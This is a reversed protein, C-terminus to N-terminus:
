ALVEEANPRAERDAELQRSLAEPSRTFPALLAYFSPVVFLTLLTALTVGAMIVVGITFRSASGAGDALVLPLAGIVTSVSTMIIPRLRVVSAELVADVVSRGADRLQNAFEVILIGNKAALGILMVIGIQSYLNMSSGALWLGLLAGFVALPVTLMIVLPHIFSEFQAALVLYVVLLALAFSVWAASGSIKYERSEGKYDWGADSPLVDRAADEVYTLAEGLPYGPVLQASVTIARLRNYRNFTSPEALERLTVLSALPVLQGNRGRVYLNDLDAPDARDESRAQLMVEYEEGGRQFTTVRRSGFMTELTSGIEETSVGLDAARPRDIEVRIQPRTEKYDSDIGVLKDNESLREILTDRWSMLTDYDPGLLVFQLPPGYSRVLGQRAQAFASMGPLEGLEKRIKEMSEVTTGDRQEWPAMIAVAQGTHTDEGAGGWGRPARTIVRRVVGEDVMRLLVAEVQEMQELTYDFGAGEPGNLMVFFVGRDEPPALEAPVLKLLGWIGGAALLLVLGMLASHGVTRQLVRRYAEGIRTTFQDVKHAWGGHSEEPTLLWACLAPSLSLAVISSVIVAAAIAVALESFLRGLNGEMFAIPVFVSVLVATTAIVAFGVQRAGRWAALLRTEGLDVRRQCNELVVIADDVVLGISLVLALLTLLNISYGLAYLATFSAILCIPVTVAPILAARASGLFAYIVGIVLAMTIALTFYVESIASEIFESTDVAVLLRTGEPLTEAIREAADKVGRSVDIANATSQKIIGLGVQPQGNGRYYTRTEEAGLEVRAVEGLRILRNDEGRGIVLERFDSEETYSRTIRLTFDRQAGELRGAPLEVNERRLAASVDSVTLGRAALAERDLWLRMAYRLGGGVRVRAVGDITSLRDVVFREAYDTLSLTDMRDSTLNLWLIVDADGEVKAVDPPDAEQPLNEVVRSVADRVDNAAAEIDRSLAFTITVDARGNRSRSEITDIGAIGQVADELVQTIRTEVVAASAGNYNVNVSVIPPDINPVERLPLRLFSMVGLVVLLLSLVVALVPRRVSVDSLFM